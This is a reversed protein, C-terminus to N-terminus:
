LCLELNFFLYFASAELKVVTFGVNASLSVSDYFSFSLSLSVSDYVSLSVSVLKLALALGNDLLSFYLPFGM